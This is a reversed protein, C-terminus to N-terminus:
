KESANYGAASTKSMIAELHAKVFTEQFGAARFLGHLTNQPFTSFLTKPILHEIDSDLFNVKHRQRLPNGLQFCEKALCACTYDPCM